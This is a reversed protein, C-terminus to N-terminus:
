NGWSCPAECRYANDGYTWHTHCLGSSSRALAAPTVPAAATGAGGSPGASQRGAGGRGRNGSGGRGRQPRGRGGGNRGRQGSHVAAVPNPEEVLELVAISGVQRHAHMAWLRDARVALDRPDADENDGFLVRLKAPLRQLFLFLFFNNAEHGRPCLELMSALLESPKKDGLDGMQHLKEIKQFDTLEHSALLRAKLQTYPATASPNELVDLVLRVSERPLAAVLNDFKQSESSVDRLRFRSEAYLFWSAPSESWFAPLKLDKRSSDALPPQPAPPQMPPPIEDEQDSM